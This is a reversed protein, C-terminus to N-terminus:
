SERDLVVSLGNALQELLTKDAESFADVTDSDIDLEGLVRSAGTIPVVMESRTSPFCSLFRSDGRVDPVVITRGVKAALGCIGEGVDIVPHTGAGEGSYVNLVLSGRELLYIGVWDFHDCSDRLIRTVEHLVSDPDEEEKVLERIRELVSKM